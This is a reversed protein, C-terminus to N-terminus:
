FPIGSRVTNRNYDFKIDPEAKLSITFNFSFNGNPSQTFGFNARWDHIDRQLSVIHSAFEHREMDYVTQWAATWKPTLSFNLNGNLSMTPPIAYQPGGVTATGIPVENTPQATQQAICTDFLLANTGAIAACRARPDFQIINTGTPPRPSSRSLSLSARWGQGPPILYQSANRASGAAPPAALSQQQQANDLQKQAQTTDPNTASLPKPPPAPKGFLKALVAFPNQDRGLTFNASISTLFPKFKATDTQTSGQFLSYGSSFDFGPLLDSALSYNWNESTLGTIKPHGKAREFDYTLPSTTISLLKITQGPDTGTTDTRSRVKAEFNQNVGFSMSRQALNGLYGARTRGLAKLYEDSVETHPAIAFSVSPSISHRIRAFPGFGPFLAFLTPSASIGGTLRKSQHVYQGDTQESAVWYPGPDM